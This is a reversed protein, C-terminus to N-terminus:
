KKSNSMTTKLKLYNLAFSKTEPKEKSNKREPNVHCSNVYDRKKGNNTKVFSQNKTSSTFSNNNKAHSSKSRTRIAGVSENCSQNPGLSSNHSNSKNNQIFNPNNKKKEAIKRNLLEPKLEFKEEMNQSLNPNYHRAIPFNPQKQKNINSNMNMIKSTLDNGGRAIEIKLKLCDTIGNKEKKQNNILNNLLTQPSFNKKKSTFKEPTKNHLSNQRTNENKGYDLELNVRQFSTENNLSNLTNTQTKETKEMSQFRYPFLGLGILQNEM